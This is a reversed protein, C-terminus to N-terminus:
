GKNICSRQIRLLRVAWRKLPTTACHAQPRHGGSGGSHERQQGKGGEAWACKRGGGAVGEPEQHQRGMAPLEGVVRARPARGTHTGLGRPLNEPLCRQGRRGSRRGRAGACARARRPQRRGAARAPCHGTGAHALLQPSIVAVFVRSTAVLLEIKHAWQTAPPLSRADFFSLRGKDRLGTHVAHTVEVSGLQWDQGTHSLFAIHCLRLALPGSEAAGAARMPACLDTLTTLQTHTHCVHV